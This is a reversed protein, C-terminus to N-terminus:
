WFALFLLDLSLGYQEFVGTVGTVGILELLLCSLSRLATGIVYIVMSSSMMRLEGPELSSKTVKLLELWVNRTSSLSFLVLCISRVLSLLTDSFSSLILLEYTLSVWDSSSGSAGAVFITFGSSCGVTLSLELAFSTLFDDRVVAWMSKM